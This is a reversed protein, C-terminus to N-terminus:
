SFFTLFFFRMYYPRDYHIFCCLPLPRKVSAPQKEKLCLATNTSNPFDQEMGNSCLCLTGEIVCFEEAIRVSTLLHDLFTKYQYHTQQTHTFAKAQISVTFATRRFHCLFQPLPILSRERPPSDYSRPLTPCRLLDECILSQQNNNNKKENSQDTRLM